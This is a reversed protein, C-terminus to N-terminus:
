QQIIASVSISKKATATGKTAFQATLFVNIKLFAIKKHAPNGHVIMSM